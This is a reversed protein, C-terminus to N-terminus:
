RAHHGHDHWRVFPYQPILVSHYGPPEPKEHGSTGMDKEKTPHDVTPRAHSGDQPVLAAGPVALHVLRSLEADRIRNAYETGLSEAEDTSHDQIPDARLPRDTPDTAKNM